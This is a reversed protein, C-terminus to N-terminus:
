RLMFKKKLEQGEKIQSRMLNIYSSTKEFRFKMINEEDYSNIQVGYRQIMKNTISFTEVPLNM